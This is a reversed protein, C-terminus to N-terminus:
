LENTLSPTSCVCRWSDLLAIQSRAATCGETRMADAEDICNCSLEFACNLSEISQRKIAHRAQNDNSLAALERIRTRAATKSSALAEGRLRDVSVASGSDKAVKSAKEARERVKNEDVTQKRRQLEAYLASHSITPGLMWPHRVLEEMKMRKNVDPCLIKNLFDKVLDSFYATRQHAEWFLHHKNNSLQARPPLFLPSVLTSTV